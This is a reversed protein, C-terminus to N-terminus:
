YENNIVIKVSQRGLSDYSKVLKEKEIKINKEDKLPDNIYFYNEDCGTLVVVHEDKPYTYTETKDFSQWTFVEKVEEYDITIWILSPGDYVLDYLSEKSNNLKISLSSKNDQLIKNITKAIVVDFCGWGGNPSTPDGAYYLAPNPGFRTGNESYIREKPLYEMFESLSINIGYYNLLMVASAAECGNPYDPNQLILPVDYNTKVGLGLFEYYKNEYYNNTYEEIIGAEKDQYEFAYNLPEYKKMHNTLILQNSYYDNTLPPILSNKVQEKQNEFLVYWIINNSIFITGITIILVIRQYKKIINKM